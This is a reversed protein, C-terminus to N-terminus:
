MQGLHPLLIHSTGVSQSTQPKITTLLGCKALDHTIKTQHSFVQQGHDLYQNRNGTAAYLGSHTEVVGFPVSRVPGYRFHCILCRRKCDSAKPTVGFERRRTRMVESMNKSVHGYSVPISSPTDLISSPTLGVSRYRYASLTIVMAWDLMTLHALHAASKQPSHSMYHTLHKLHSVRVSMRKAHM